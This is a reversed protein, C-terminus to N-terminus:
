TASEEVRIPVEQLKGRDLRSQEERHLSVCTPKEPRATETDLVVLDTPNAEALRLTGTSSGHENYFHAVVKGPFFSELLVQCDLREMRLVCPV